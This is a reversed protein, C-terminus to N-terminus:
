GKSRRSDSSRPFTREEQFKGDKGHIVVSAPEHLQAETRALHIAEAKTECQCAAYYVSSLRAGPSGSFGEVRNGEADFIKVARVLWRDFTRDYVVHIISRKAKM